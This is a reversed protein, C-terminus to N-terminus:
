GRNADELQHMREIPAAVVLTDGPHVLTEPAAMSANGASRKHLVVTVGYDKQVAAVTQSPLRHVRLDAVHITQGDMQFCQHVTRGTM